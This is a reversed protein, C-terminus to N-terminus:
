KMVKLFEIAIIWFHPSCFRDVGREVQLFFHLTLESTAVNSRSRRKQLHIRLYRKFSAVFVKYCLKESVKQEKKPTRTQFIM